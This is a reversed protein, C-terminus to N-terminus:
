DAAPPPSVHKRRVSKLRKANAEQRSRMLAEREGGEEATTMRLQSLRADPQEVISQLLTDYHRSLRIMTEAEFLATNYKIFGSVHEGVENIVVSMDFKATEQLDGFQSVELSPLRLSTLPVNELSFPVQILPPHSLSRVPALEEVLKDFPLDQHAYAGLCVERVRALLKLFTPDGSLDTRLALMNVFFGILPELESHTRNAIATGVVVDEQGTYRSLLLQFAALLTMFLTVGNKRSLEKVAVVLEETLGLSQYAANHTPVSSRPRDLPLELVAPAGSLARRWYALQAELADGRLWERQWAAFDAYQIPLEPLPSPRGAAFAEYLAAVERILVGVSWGDSAIHHMIFLVVHETDGLKLLQARLVPGRALDFPRQWEEFILETMLAQRKAETLATLDILPMTLPEAPHIVQVPGGEDVVYSTRLVEHRRVVETLTRELASVNLEGRLRLAHSNNYLPSDTDLQAIFWLRQQAFSMPPLQKHSRRTLPPAAEGERLAATEVRTAFGAVTPQEFLELLPVEVGFTRRVRSILQTALLSHGGRAFFDDHAGVRELGLVEAFAAALLEETPTRPAVYENVTGATEEPEPLARRDLKSEATLPIEDLFVFAAPVMYDPLRESLHARLEGVAPVAGEGCVVYAVLRKEGSRDARATVVAERVSEHTCLVAEVEGTEVRYGRVKVQQDTRGLFTINGDPLRRGVDGSRYFREGDIYVFKERTLEDRKLYGRALGAGGIYIEGPVGVPVLNGYRDFLHLVTNSMPAGIMAHEVTHGHAVPYNACMITAETPGYGVNVQASPFVEQMERLLEPSVKDGGTCLQRVHAYGGPQPQERAFNAFQRMLGTAAHLFTVEQLVKRAVPADLVERTDLLLCKGGAALVSLLEFLSIDFTFPAVWPVVDNPTFRYIEQAALLTNSLQRHEVMVGKPRGTSGSTYIIYALQEAAVDVALDEASHAEIQERERELSIVRAGSQPLRGAESDRTVVLSVDADELVFALRETPHQPDLPVYAGGSKFIALLGVVMEVGRGLCLGVRVEPGAGAARLHRALRNARANLEAFSLEEGGSKLAARSPKLRAQEEFMEHAHSARAWERGTENWRRLEEREADSLLPMRMVEVDGGSAAEELLRVYHGVMRAVTAEDYLDSHYILLGNLGEETESLIMNLEFSVARSEHGSVPSLTLGPLRLEGGPANQLAFMVQFIPAHSLSREPALEEVLREFPLDQHAYAGLCAERVRRLLEGFTPSGSLDARLALTNVFFGILPETEARTRNAIPSGVVVDEQGTYRSLLLQWGALLTMFLTSDERRSLGRLSATLDAPLTFTHFAGRHTQVSPRPRDTTLELVPPAGALQERWYRLLRELSEGRLLERQWVAFDAYQIELEPLPSPRGEAFAEYLTAVEGVLVGGSWGDSVIHHMTFLAIHEEESLKLLKARLLPGEALDFPEVYEQEVFARVRSEREDTPLASLDLVPLSLPKPPHIIQVPQGELSGFATRLVEHRRCVETLTQSLASVDLRGSLRLATPMNYLSNGPELQDIFWLRQQAFSLPPADGERAVRVPGPGSSWEGARLLREVSQALGRVTPQEFMERLPVEVGLAQRLRSVLQTALLSHGGLEFFNEDAGVRELGLVEGFLAGLLEETGTTLAVFAPTARPRNHEPDPLARRDVKGNPSLPLLDLTVFASPMMYEPLRGRLHRRLEAPDVTGSDAAVIYAVLRKDGGVPEPRAVVVAERVTRHEGLAAEIEGTEIRYGRVKVQGDARGLFEIRGDELYRVTDGTRYLREGGDASFPNPVFREATQGARGLYGRALGDGGVYLEGAMGVGVPSMREDLIYVRTNAIPRGIPVNAGVGDADRMPHCTTFTTAETPGYGNIVRCGAVERLVRQVAGPTLVDGGALLQRVGCLGDLQREVMQHFLGATLWLTTVQHRRLVDALQELSPREAPFIALRAGNLLAGWIEFTSADFSVPALQLLTEAESLSVYDTNVVLRSIARHTVCVGKPRGTSGSTYMIYALNDPAASRGLNEASEGAISEADADLCLLHGWHTPLNDLLREQTLLVPVQADEIMFALRELPYEPDLPLYAGGAKLVALLAAVMETSRELMVGVVVEPGVGLGRLRWALQNARTNLEAYTVEGTDAMLALAEPSQAAREEFLEHVCLGRPYPRETCNWEVLVQRREDEGLLSLQGVVCDPDAAASALLTEFHTIFREATSADFLEVDYDLSGGIREGSDFMTLTMDFKTTTIVGPVPSLKLGPLELGTLSANQLAFMVQFIPAHSLSREPALEEVLREFPLDQHAYAGLCAERVRGVLERFTPAGSLDARLALTNVFFGILSETESRTRNAIPTGVVVDEQGAHRSLLLQWAALLTMFLTAGEQRSLQRLAASLPAPLTFNYSAGRHTQVSPRARDTPLKLTAPAGALQRRWYDLEQELVEGSLWERQWAAFDAYQIPLEPLPSPQDAVFAEYLAAVERVLVGLSWGDGVIHHMTLTAIHDEGALKLLSARLLPGRALDFPRATEQSVFARSQAEREEEPEASLDVQELKVPRASRVVQVPQGGEAAFTTRLVEHRRVIENLTAGLAEVDLRGEMRLAITVNYASGGPQLQEVFWLRQQAYSLPWRSQGAVRRAPAPGLEPRAAAPSASGGSAGATSRYGLAEALERTVDGLSDERLTEKWREGVAAEIGRYSHFKVDGLMRSEAYIGDTMRRRQRAYPQLMDPHLDLGLFRCVGDTVREPERLLEEFVVRHQRGAPVHRLFELINQHCVLWTLEALERRTFPHEYRFFLQDIKAEEFSRIMGLPHRLLHIYRAGEFDEEARRLISLDLAYSPTKDVLRRSGLWEQMLRYFEKTTLGGDEYARMIEKAEDADCRRVEMLARLAGELWFSDAGSFATRREALTNFSLLELEPPSFLEPHGALMVRFLTSGSRPPSLVFVAPPNKHSEAVPSEGRGDGARARLPRILRRMIALQETTIRRAPAPTGNGNGNDEAHAPSVLGVRTLAESHQDRLYVALQELTPANFITVVHIIDDLHRQLSNIFVAGKISDGGLSFFDDRVGIREIGLMERWMGALMEEVADRPAVYDTEFAPREHGPAPLERRDVKGNPSIPLAEMFVFAAPIMYDPLKSRLFARLEDVPPPASERASTLYAVLRRDGPEDERVIVLAEHVAAHELLAAEVEGLEIRFGRVKVQDDARGLFDINGGPLFRARDGTKYLRAGPEASFPHPVFRQATLGPRRLYGRALGAGGIHLEGAVGVPVPRLHEDLVYLQVNDIPQGIDPKRTADRCEAVSSWVTAESPGYANFFRRGDRAWRKVLEAGCAEGAVIITHLDPLEAQPLLALASPPLTVNTVRRERLLNLLSTGPLLEERRALHLEAGNTLGMVIEFVSADFSLSAFQIVRNEPRLSFARVQAQAMNLLGRHALEVGKPQGTSGSTYIVYALNDPSAVPAPQQESEAAITEWDADLCVVQGWHAPLNDLLHEQVLLVPLAADNIIFSLRALPYAPDLPVYAGGAKLTGLLGVLMEPSRDCCLGVPVEAGVGLGRLYHALRNARANLEGYTLEERGESVVATSDPTQAAREEFLEHICKDRPYEIATANWQYLIEHQEAEDLLPLGSLAQEPQRLIGELLTRFHGLLREITAEEFLDSSYHLAASLGGATESIYLVLDFKATENDNRFATMTLGSMTTLREEDQLPEFGFAVQFLPAYSLSREPNLEEVLKEFPVDQHAYAEFTVGRVRRLFERFGPDGSLDARLVLTNVFFGILNQIEARDRGATATGVLLDPQGTYRHLLVQFAALLTMFLTAGEERGLRKLGEAIRVPIELRQTAGRLTQVSPRPHDTPLELLAPADALQRKWYDLQTELVGSNLWERQWVAFDAYQVPLEPLPSPQGGTFAMYLAGVERALVGVSWIDSVIHHLTFFLAHEEPSLRVLSVRLVPGRALDFPRRRDDNALRRAEEERVAEPLESIDILPLGLPSPPSVLQVPQGDSWPFTTRLVEHRRVIEDLAQRLAARDLRGSLRVMLPFTYAPNGPELQDIFWLRQQAFSLPASERRPLHRIQEREPVSFQEGRLRKELLARKTDSLKSRRDKADENQM